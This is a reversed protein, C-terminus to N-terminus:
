SNAGYQTLRSKAKLYFEGDKVDLEIIQRWLDKAADINGFKEQLVSDLYINKLKNNLEIKVKNLLGLAPNDSSEIDLSKRCLTITQALQGATYAKQAQDYFQIKQVSLMKELRGKAARSKAKLNQPDPFQSAIHIQYAKIAEKIKNQSDLLAAKKFLSESASVQGNYAIKQAQKQMRAEEQKEVMGIIQLADPHNPDLDLAPALCARIEDPKVVNLNKQRCFAIIQDVKERLMREDEKQREIEERQIKLDRAEICLEEYHRSDKYSKVIQHIKGLQSLALEYKQALFHNKALNYSNEIMQRQDSTLKDLEGQNAKTEPSEVSKPKNDSLIAFGLAITVVGILVYRITKTRDIKKKQPGETMLTAGGLVESQAQSTNWTESVADQSSDDSVPIDNRRLQFSAVLQGVQIVDGSELQHGDESSLSMGNILTGNSSKLDRVIFKGAEEYIEFHKRSAKIDDLVIDSLSDRGAVWSHGILQILQPDGHEQHIQLFPQVALHSAATVENHQLEDEPTMAFEDTPSNDLLEFQYPSLEFSEQVLLDFQAVQEGKFSITGNSSVVKVQLVNHDLCIEFHQRSIGKLTQLLIDSGLQRGIVYTSGDRLHLVHIVQGNLKTLLKM